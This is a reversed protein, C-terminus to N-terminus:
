NFNEETIPEKPKDVAAGKPKAMWVAGILMVFCSIIVYNSRDNMLGAEYIQEYGGNISPSLVIVNMKASYYTAIIGALFMLTGLGKM